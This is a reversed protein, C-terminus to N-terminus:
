PAPSTTPASTKLREIEEKLKEIHLEREMTAEAGLYKRFKLLVWASYLAAAALGAMFAALGFDGTPFSMGAAVMFFFAFLCNGGICVIQAHVPM